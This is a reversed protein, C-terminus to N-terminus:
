VAKNPTIRSLSERTLDYISMGIGIPLGKRIMFTTPMLQKNIHALRSINAQKTFLYSIIQRSSPAKTTIPALQKHTKIYFPLILVLSAATAPIIGSIMMYILKNQMISQYEPEKSISKAKHKAHQLAYIYASTTPVCVTAGRYFTTPGQSRLTHLAIDKPSKFKARSEECQKAAIFQKKTFAPPLNLMSTFIGLTLASTIDHTHKCHIDVSHLLIKTLKPFEELAIFFAFKNLVKSFMTVSFGEFMHKSILKVDNGNMRLTIYRDLPHFVLAAGLGSSLAAITKISTKQSHTEFETSM